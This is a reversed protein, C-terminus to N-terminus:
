QVGGEGEGASYVRPHFALWKCGKPHEARKMNDVNVDVNVGTIIDLTSIWFTYSFIFAKCHYSSNIEKGYYM